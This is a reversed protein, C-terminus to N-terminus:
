FHRNRIASYSATFAPRDTPGIGRAEEEAIFEQLRGTKIAEALTLV